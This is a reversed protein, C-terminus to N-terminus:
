GAIITSGVKGGDVLRGCAGCKELTVQMEQGGGSSSFVCEEEPQGCEPHRCLKPWTSAGFLKESNCNMQMSLGKRIEHQNLKQELGVARSFMLLHKFNDQLRNKKPGKYDKTWNSFGFSKTTTTSFTILGQWPLYM